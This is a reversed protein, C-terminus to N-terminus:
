GPLASWDPARLGAPVSIVRGQADHLQGTSLLTSSIGRAAATPRYYAVRNGKDTLPGVYEWRMGLSLTLTDSFRWTDQAFAAGGFQRYDREGNSGFQIYGPSNGILLDALDNGTTNADEISGYGIIAQNIFLFATDQMYKTGDIGFKFRHDGRAWSLSDQIQFNSSYRTQPGQFTNGLRINRDDLFIFPPGAFQPAAVFNATFGIQSPTTKNVPSLSPQGNRAYGALFSNVVTPSFTFTHRLAANYTKRLDVSGFGPVNAGNTTPLLSVSERTAINYRSFTFGLTQRTTNWPDVRFTLQDSNSIEPAGM